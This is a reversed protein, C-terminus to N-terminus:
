IGELKNMLKDILEKNSLTNIDIPEIIAAIAAELLFPKIREYEDYTVEQIKCKDFSEEDYRYLDSITQTTGLEYKNIELNDHYSPYLWYQSYTFTEDTKEPIIIIHTFNAPGLIKNSSQPLNNSFWHLKGIKGKTPRSM